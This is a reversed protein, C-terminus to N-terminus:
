SDDVFFALEKAHIQKNKLLKYHGGCEVINFFNICFISHKFFNILCLMKGM